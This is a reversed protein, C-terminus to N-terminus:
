SRFITASRRLRDLISPFDFGAGEASPTWHQMIMGNPAYVFSLRLAPKTTPASAFAPVMGDLVPLAVAAGLGRLVTRRSMHKKFITM